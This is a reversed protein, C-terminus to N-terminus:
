DKIAALLYVNKSESDRDRAVLPSLGRFVLGEANSLSKDIPYSEKVTASKEDPRLTAEFRVITKGQQSLAFLAGSPGVTLDSLDPASGGDKVQWAHLAVYTKATPAFRGRLQAGPAYGVPASGAPGMEVIVTPSKEIAVLIHGGELLVLGEGLSNDEVHGDVFPNASKYDLTLAPSAHDLDKAVVFVTGTESLLVPKGEGDIAVGEWQSGNKTTELKTRHLQVDVPEGAADLGFSVLDTTRDGIAVYLGNREALGSVELLPLTAKTVIKRRASEKLDDTSTAADPEASCGAVFALLSVFAFAHHKTM